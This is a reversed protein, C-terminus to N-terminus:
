WHNKKKKKFPFDLIPSKLMTEGFFHKNRIQSPLYKEHLKGFKSISKKM